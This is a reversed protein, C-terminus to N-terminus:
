FIITFKFRCSRSKFYLYLSLRFNKIESLFDVTFKNIMLKQTLSSTILLVFYYYYYYYYYYEQTFM